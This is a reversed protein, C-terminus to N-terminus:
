KTTVTSYNGLDYMTVEQEKYLRIMTNLMHSADLLLTQADGVKVKELVGEKEFIPILDDCKRKKSWSPDHVKTKMSRESGDEFKVKVEFTEPYYVPYKFDDVADELTHLNTGANDLTVGIMLIKGKREAVRYFPSKDTYPTEEGFHSGVFYASDPGICSVPETPHCSRKSKPHTRFVETIAGLKSADNAVDFCEINQIYELQFSANPSNPMLIHGEDGVVELLSDIVTQPGGEVYGMKSLASHVLVTDGRDIGISKLQEKLDEKAWGKNMAKQEEIRKRTQQKKRKRYLELLWSPTISRILDRM